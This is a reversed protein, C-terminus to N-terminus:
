SAAILVDAPIRLAQHLRQIMPLTLKRKRGLVEYVRNSKGIMPELDKVTLGSQEMRFKIAEIPDSPLVIPYYKAEYAQILTILAELHAGEESQPDPEETADFYREAIKLAERYQEETRLPRITYDTM